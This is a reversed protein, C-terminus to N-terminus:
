SVGLMRNVCANIANESPEYQNIFALRIKCKYAIENIHDGAHEMNNQMNMVFMILGISVALAIGISVSIAIINKTNM